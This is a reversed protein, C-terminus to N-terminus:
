KKLSKEFEKALKSAMSDGMATESGVSSTERDEVYKPFYTMMVEEPSSFKKAKKKSM